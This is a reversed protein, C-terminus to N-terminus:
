VLTKGVTSESRRWTDWWIKKKKKLKLSFVKNLRCPYITGMRREKCLPFLENWKIRELRNRTQSVCLQNICIHNELLRLNSVQILYHHFTMYESETSFLRVLLVFIYSSYLTQKLIKFTVLYLLYRFFTPPHPPWFM